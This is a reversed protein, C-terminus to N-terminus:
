PDSPLGSSWVKVLPTTLFSSGSYGCQWSQQLFLKSNVFKKMAIRLFPILVDIVALKMTQENAKVPCLQRLVRRAGAHFLHTWTLDSCGDDTSQVLVKFMITPNSFKAYIVSMNWCKFSGLMLICPLFSFISVHESFNFPTLCFLVRSFQTVM